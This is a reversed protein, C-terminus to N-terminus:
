VPVPAKCLLHVFHHGTDAGCLNTGQAFYLYVHLTFAINYPRITLLM